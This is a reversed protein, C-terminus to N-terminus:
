SDDLSPSGAAEVLDACGLSGSRVFVLVEGAREPAEGRSMRDSPDNPRTANPLFQGSGGSGRMAVYKFALEATMPADLNLAKLAIRHTVAKESAGTPMKFSPLLGRAKFRDAADGTLPKGDISMEVNGSEAFPPGVLTGGEDTIHM